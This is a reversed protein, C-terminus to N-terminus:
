GGQSGPAHLPDLADEPVPLRYGILLCGPKGEISTHILVKMNEHDPHPAIMLLDQFHRFILRSLCSMDAASM